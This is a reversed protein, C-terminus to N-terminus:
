NLLSLFEIKEYPIINEDISKWVWNSSRCNSCEGEETPESTTLGCKNCEIYKRKAMNNMEKKRMKEMKGVGKM